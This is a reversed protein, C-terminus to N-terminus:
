SLQMYCGGLNKLIGFVHDTADLMRSMGIARSTFAWRELYKDRSHDMLILAFFKNRRPKGEKDLNLYYIQYYHRGHDLSRPEKTCEAWVEYGARAADNLAVLEQAAHQILESSSWMCMKARAKATDHWMKNNTLYMMADGITFAKGTEILRSM